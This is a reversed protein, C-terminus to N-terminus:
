NKALKKLGNDDREEGTRTGEAKPASNAEPAAAGSLTIHSLIVFLALVMGGTMCRSGLTAM